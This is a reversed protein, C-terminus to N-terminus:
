FQQFYQAASASDARETWYTTGTPKGLSLRDRGILRFLVAIFTFISFYALALVVKSVLWGIPFALMNWGVYLWRIARPFALGLLGVAVAAAVIAYWVDPQGGHRLRYWGMGGIVAILLGAFQRLLKHSPNRDIDKFHM